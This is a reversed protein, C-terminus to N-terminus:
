QAVMPLRAHKSGTQITVGGACLIAELNGSALLDILCCADIAADPMVLGQRKFAATGVSSAGGGEAALVEIRQLVALM